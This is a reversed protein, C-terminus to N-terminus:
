NEYRFGLDILNMISVCEDCKVAGNREEREEWDGDGDCEAEAEAM